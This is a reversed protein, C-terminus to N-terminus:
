RLNETACLLTKFSYKNTNEYRESTRGGNEEKESAGDAKDACGTNGSCFIQICPSVNNHLIQVPGPLHQAVIGQVRIEIPM